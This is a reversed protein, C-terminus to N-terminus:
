KKDKEASLLGGLKSGAMKSLAIEIKVVSLIQRATTAVAVADSAKTEGSRVENLTDWLVGKLRAGSLDNRTKKM